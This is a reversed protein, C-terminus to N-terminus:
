NDFPCDVSHGQGSQARRIKLVAELLSKFGALVFLLAIAKM